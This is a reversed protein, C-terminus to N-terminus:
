RISCTIILEYDSTGHMKGCSWCEKSPIKMCESFSSVFLESNTDPCKVIYATKVIKSKKMLKILENSIFQQIDNKAFFERVCGKPMAEVLMDFAKTMYDDDSISSRFKDIKTKFAIKKFADKDSKIDDWNM